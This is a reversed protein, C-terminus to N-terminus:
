LIGLKHRENIISKVTNQIINGGYCGRHVAILIGREDKLKKLLNM